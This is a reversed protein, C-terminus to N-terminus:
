QGMRLADLPSARTARLTPLASSLLAVVLILVAVAAYVRPDREGVGFLQASLLRSVALAAAAGWMIGTVTVRLSHGLVLQMLDRSRAGIAARIGLEQRRQAVSYSILGYLGIAALVLASVAFAGIVSGTLQQPRASAAVIEDGSKVDIVPLAADLNAVSARILRTVESVARSTRAILHMDSNPRQARSIYIAAKPQEDLRGERVDAVVGVISQTGNIGWSFAVNQGLPDGDLWLRAFTENVVVVPQSGAADSPQFFRGRVLRAQLVDFYNSSVIRKEVHAAGDPFRPNNLGVSGYTGGEIPLDSALTVTRPGFDGALRETLRDFFANQAADTAYRTSPLWVRATILDDPRFGKPVNVLRLYSEALLAAAVLLVFSLAIESVMLTRRVADRSVHEVSGRAGSLGAIVDRRLARLAPTMGFALGSFLSLGCAVALVRGDIAATAVRPLTGVLMTRAVNGIAYALGIGFLGGVAARTVSEVMVLSVLRGRDAGLATRVAFERERSASRALLLSAVNACTILLLLAVAVLLLALPAALDGILVTALQRVHLGHTTSRDKKITDAIADVRGAAQALTVGSRLRAIGDLHHLGRPASKPDRQLPEWFDAPKGRAMYYPSPLIASATSPFIGIVQYSVGTLMVARGVIRPDAGFHSRWVHEGLIVVHPSGPLEDADIFGRGLTPRLGLLSPLEFSAQVGRLQEAEGVGSLVEGRTGYAGVSEFVDSGRDRWDIFEPFSLAGTDRGSQIDFLKVLSEQGPYPLPRLLVADVISFIATTAGVGLAITLTVVVSFGPAQRITRLAYRFDQLLPM